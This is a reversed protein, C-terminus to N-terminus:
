DEMFIKKDLLEILRGTRSEIMVLRNKAKMYDDAINMATLLAIDLKSAAKANGKIEHVKGNVYDAINKTYEEGEENRVILKHELIKVEVPSSL